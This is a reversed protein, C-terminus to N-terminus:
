DPMECLNQGNYSDNKVFIYKTRRHLDATAALLVDVIVSVFM